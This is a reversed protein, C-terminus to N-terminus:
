EKKLSKVKISYGWKKMGEKKMDTEGIFQLDNVIFKIFDDPNRFNIHYNPYKNLIEETDVSIELNFVKKIINQKAM